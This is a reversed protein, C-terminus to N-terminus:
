PRYGVIHFAHLALRQNDLGDKSPYAANRKQHSGDTDGIGHNHGDILSGSFDAHHLDDAGCAAVHHFHKKHFRSKDADASTDEPQGATQASGSQNIKKGSIEHPRAHPAFGVIYGHDRRVQHNKGQNKGKADPDNGPEIRGPPRGFEARDQRDTILLFLGKSRLKLKIQAIALDVDDVHDLSNFSAIVDFYNNPFPIHEASAWVYAMNLDAIGLEMYDNSLPDLGIRAAANDAWELSGRPGCGIDLIRKGTFYGKNLKFHGTYFYEYHNNNFVNGEAQYCRQWYNLEAEGKSEM